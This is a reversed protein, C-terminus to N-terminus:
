QLDTQQLDVRREAAEVDVEVVEDAASVESLDDIL